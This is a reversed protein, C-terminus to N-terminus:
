LRVVHVDVVIQVGSRSNLVHFPCHAAADGADLADKAFVFWVESRALWVCFLKKERCDAM